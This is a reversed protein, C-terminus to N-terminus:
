IRDQNVVEPTDSVHTNITDQSGTPAPCTLSIDEVEPSSRYFVASLLFFLFASCKLAVSLAFFSYSMRNNDYFFCSGRQDCRTQWLKCTLDIIKGFFIPSPISGILRAIVWQIGLALSRQAEPLCRLTAALSPIASMFTFFIAFAFVPMFLPLWKCSNQCKGFEASFASSNTETFNICSCTSYKQKTGKAVYSCGAYCPSYYMINDKGCVPHYQEQTCGCGANCTDNLNGVIVGQEGNLPQIDGYKVNVGAFPASDCNILYAVNSVGGIVTCVICVRFIGRIKLSFRKVLYGGLFTGGGGTIVAALGMYLSATSATLRFQYEIYKPGFAAVGGVLIDEVAAALTLLIFTPNLLILKASLLLNKFGRKTGIKAINKKYGERVYIEKGKEAQYKSSGPLSKPFGAMVAAIIFCLVGTGLFGAWWAGVWRPNFRDISLSSIDVSGIDVYLQLFQGGILYGVASGAIAFTYFIGVYFSTSRLPLNEELYTVGLTYLPAAGLGNLIQSLYFVYKYQSLGSESNAGCQDTRNVGPLCTNDLGSSPLYQGTTFHPLAFLFSGLGLFFMGCSLYRPKIGHGGFYSIPVAFLVFGIDYCSAIIGSETSSIEFRRELSSIVSNVMGNVIIGQITAACCLWFLVCVPNRFRQCCSPKVWGWSCVEDRPDGEAVVAVVGNEEASKKSDSM